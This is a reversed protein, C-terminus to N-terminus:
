GGFGKMEEDVAVVEVKCGSLLRVGDLCELERLCTIKLLNGYLARQKAFYLLQHKEEGVVKAITVLVHSANRVKAELALPRLKSSSGGIDDVLSSSIRPIM